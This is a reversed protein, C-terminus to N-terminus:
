YFDCGNRGNEKVRYLVKDADKVISEGPNERDAFAVGVSLSVAPTGDETSLQVDRIEEPLSEESKGYSEAVLRMSYYETKGTMAYMRVQETLYDSGDQLEKASNQCLIYEDTTLRLVRFEKESSVSVAAFIVALVITIIISWTSVSQTRIKKRKKTDKM